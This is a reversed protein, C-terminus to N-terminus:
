PLPGAPGRAMRRPLRAVTGAPADYVWGSAILHARAGALAVSQRPGLSEESIVWRSFARHTLKRTDVILMAPEREVHEPTLHGETDLVARGGRDMLVGVHGPHRALAWELGGIRNEIDDPEAFAATVVVANGFLGNGVRERLRGHLLAYPDADLRDISVAGVQSHGPLSGLITLAAYASPRVPPGDIETGPPAFVLERRGLDFVFGETLQDYAVATVVPPRRRAAHVRTERTARVFTASGEGAVTARLDPEILLATNDDLGVGLTGRGDSELRALMALLRAIRGRATFHTDFITGPVLALFGERVTMLRHHADRIAEEPYISGKRADYLMEGLVHAGASTGGVVGGARHVEVVARELATGEWAAAYKAQDGGKILLGGAERIARYTEGADAQARDPVCLNVAGSAGLRRFYGPLWDSEEYVSLIVIRGGRAREAIWGYVANSWAGPEDDEAGGGIVAVPGREDPHAQSM